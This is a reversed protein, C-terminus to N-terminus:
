PHLRREIQQKLEEVDYASQTRIRYIPMGAAALVADKFEDRSRRGTERHRRDDLEVVLLPQTTQPDCIVFDVHYRGIKRFWQREDKRDPPCCVVDALRVKCFLRYKGKVALFLPHWLAREGKSLLHDAKRYPLPGARQDQERQWSAVVKDVREFRERKANARTGRSPTSYRRSSRGRRSPEESSLLSALSRAM